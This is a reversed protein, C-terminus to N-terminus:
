KRKITETNARLVAINNEYTEPNLFQRLNILLEAQAMKDIDSEYIANAIINLAKELSSADM